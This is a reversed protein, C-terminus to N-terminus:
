QFMFGTWVASLLSGITPLGLGLSHHQAGMTKQALTTAIMLITSEEGL